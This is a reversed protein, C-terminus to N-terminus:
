KVAMLLIKIETITLLTVCTIIGPQRMVPMGDIEWLRLFNSFVLKLVCPSARM